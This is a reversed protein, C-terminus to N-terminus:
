IIVNNPEFETVLFNVVFSTIVFASITILDQPYDVSPTSRLLSFYNLCGVGIFSLVILSSFKSVLSLLVLVVLYTFASRGPARGALFVPRDRDRLSVVGLM